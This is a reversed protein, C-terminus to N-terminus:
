YFVLVNKGNKKHIPVANGKKQESPFVDNSIGENFILELPRCISKGCIKLMRISIVYHSHAKNPDLQQVIDFMDNSSFKITSLRKETSYHLRSPLKRDNSILSCQKAFFSNFYNLKRKLIPSSNM